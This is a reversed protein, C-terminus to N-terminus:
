FVISNLEPPQTNIFQNVAQKFKQGRDEYNKFLDFSACAPSLLVHDGYESMEHAIKVADFMDSSEYVYEIKDKFHEKLKSNDKGLCIVARVKEYVVEDIQTYDNGKDVGGAIWIIPKEYADLAYKVADVNTAKSDNIYMVGNTVAVEELRHEANKFSNLSKTIQENSVGVALAAMAASMINVMNHQGSLPLQTVDINFVSKFHNNINFILRDQSFYAGNLVKDEVSVNLKFAKSQLYLPSSQIEESDKFTILYDNFDQNQTIRFKSAAYTDFDNDYRDLHDPTINLLIAVKPKFEFCGDLQFSSIELVYFDFDQTAVKRAFSDGINGAVGVNLGAKQLFHYTLLTTTTKGNSGTIAIIKADTYRSAFEIESIVAISLEFAKQIIAVHDPVGPSKIIEFANLILGETHQKEEYAVGMADLELKYEHAITGYDSVFVDFGQKKALIAAGVGSEGAGIIVIRKMM